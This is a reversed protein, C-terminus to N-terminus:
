TRSWPNNPAELSPALFLDNCLTHLPCLAGSLNREAKCREENSKAPRSRVSNIILDIAITGYYCLFRWPLPAWHIMM